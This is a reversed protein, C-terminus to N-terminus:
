VNTLLQNDRDERMRRIDEASDFEGEWL